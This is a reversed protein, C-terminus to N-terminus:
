PLLLLLLPPLLVMEIDSFFSQLSSFCCFGSYLLLQLMVIAEVGNGSQCVCVVHVTYHVLKSGKRGGEGGVSRCLELLSFFTENAENERGRGKLCRSEASFSREGFCAVLLVRIKAFINLM